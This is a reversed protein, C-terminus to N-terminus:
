YHWVMVTTRTHFVAHLPYKVKECKVSHHQDNDIFITSNLTLHPLLKEKGWKEHHTDDMEDHYDTSGKTAHSVESAGTM